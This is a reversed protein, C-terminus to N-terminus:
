WNLRTKQSSRVNRLVRFSKAPVYPVDKSSELLGSMSSPHGLLLGARRGLFLSDHRHLSLRTPLQRSVSCIDEPVDVM